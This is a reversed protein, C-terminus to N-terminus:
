LQGPSDCDGDRDPDACLSRRAVLQFVTSVPRSIQGARKATARLVYHGPPLPRARLRGTFRLRNLGAHDRHAFSGLSVLRRCPRTGRGACRLVRFTTRAALSDTYTITTGTGLERSITAGHTAAYFRHHSLRLRRLRPVPRKVRYSISATATQGDTSTATVTYTHAGPIATDLRGSGGDATRTGSSDDCSSVGPGGAGELCSFATGVVQGVSYTGGPAPSSISAAPAAAVTYSIRVTATQGDTSTATVTYTHGGPTATDLRSSGGGVTRTGSSDECSSLGPGGGGETCAFTTPVSQAVAYTGGTAPSSISAAPAAPTYSITVAPTGTSDISTSGGAPVLNSGGGGGGGGGIAGGATGGGGGGWYGGGGGGGACCGSGQGAGGVGFVGSGGSSGGGEVVGGAGGSTPTGAGGGGGAVNTGPQVAAGGGGGPGSDPACAASAGGGGGGGGAAVLLRSGLSGGASLPSARVDSAGGGGGGSKCSGGGAAGGNFGGAAGSGNGGVEVYLVEGPTVSVDGTVRGGFGGAGGSSGTDTGAGAAGAGGIAVGMISSVGGPVSFTQESGTSSYSCTVTDGSVACNSPLAVAAGALAWLWVFV